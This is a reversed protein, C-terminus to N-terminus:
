MEDRESHLVKERFEERFLLPFFLGVGVWETVKLKAMM